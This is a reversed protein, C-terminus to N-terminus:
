PQVILTRSVPNLINFSTDRPQPTCLVSHERGYWLKADVIQQNADYVPYPGEMQYPTEIGYRTSGKQTLLMRGDGPTWPANIKSLNMGSRQGYTNGTDILKTGDPSAWKYFIRANEIYTAVNLSSLVVNPKKFRPSSGMLASTTSLQQLLTDYWAAIDTYNTGMSYHWRDYNTVASYSIVPLIPTTATPDLGAGSKFYVIGHEYDVACTATTGTFSQIKTGDWVGQVLATDSVTITVPNTTVAKIQGNPQIQNTTRPRVVPNYGASAGENGGTLTTTVAPSLKYMYDANTGSPLGTSLVASASPTENAVELPNYEDSALVMEFYAANDLKRKKDESIHYLSRAIASYSAPGTELERIVDTSLSVANRRWSPSFSQWTLNLSSPAIGVGEGVVLDLIGTSPNYEAASSFTEVPQRWESGRFVDTFMFQASEVDQFSQMIIATLITPQNLLQATTVSVADNLLQSGNSDTYVKLQGEQVSDALAKHGIKEETRDLVKEFAKKNYERLKPDPVHGLQAAYDDMEKCIQDVIPRWPKGEAGVEVRTQGNFVTNTSDFGASDMFAKAGANGVLKIASDFLAQAVEKSEPEGISDTIAKITNDDYKGKLTAIKEDLFAKAEAKQQAAAKATEAEQVADLAPKAVEGAVGALMTRIEPDENMLKILDAKNVIEGDGKVADTMKVNKGNQQLWERAQSYRDWNDPSVTAIRHSAVTTQTVDSDEVFAEKCALCVYFDIDGDNDPDQIELEKSCHPCCPTSLQIGDEIIQEIQSDTLVKVVGCGETAPNMVIDFSQIDLFTAVDVSVGNIVRKVSDGIARMSIGVPVGQKILAKLDKGKATELIEADLFVEGNDMFLNKGKIVSNELKTDFVVKGSAAKIAKPHPTEGIMKGPDVYTAKSREVADTMVADPYLRNNDNVVNVQTAKFRAVMPGKQGEAADTLVRVQAVITDSMEQKNWSSTDVGQKKATALIKRRATARETTSLGKTKDVMDWALKTHTADNVPLARKGPVAFESDKLKDREAEKLDAM